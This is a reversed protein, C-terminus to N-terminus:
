MTDRYVNKEFERLACKASAYKAGITNRGLGTFKLPRNGSEKNVAVEVVISIGGDKLVKSNMFKVNNPYREMLEKVPHTPKKRIVENIEAESFLKTYVSWAVPLSMGSDIYVAGIIAELIDGLVKLM